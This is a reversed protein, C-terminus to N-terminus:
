QAGVVYTTVWQFLGQHQSHSFAPPSPSLLPLSPQIADGVWHVHTQTFEPLQHYVPLGLTSCDMTDCLTLCSQAVSSFLSWKKKQGLQIQKPPFRKLHFCLGRQCWCVYWFDTVWNWFIEQNVRIKHWDPWKPFNSFSYSVTRPYWGRERGSYKEEMGTM